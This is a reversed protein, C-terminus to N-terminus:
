KGTELLDYIQRYADAAIELGLKERARERLGIGSKCYITELEEVTQAIEVPNGLDVIAGADLANTTQEVDGVGTNSIVPVGMAFAEALKTPSSAIKSYAPKIFSLMVDSAGLLQPVEARTAPRVHIRDRLAELGLLQVLNEQEPGWDRTILLMQARDWRQAAIAFFRLMEDLMYWTGLSGLYCIVRADAAIGLEQRVARRSDETPLTFHSFDACCPIVTVPAAVAPCLRRLEPVARETLSVIYSACRLLRREIRKYSRYVIRDQWRSLSWLGGDVREDVWLGRMDFLTKTGTLQRLLCGVQMAPYSRCHVIDFRHRLQLRVATAYMRSLDWLKSLKGWGSTYSLPTWRIGARDLEARMSASDTEFRAKKEFSLIHITRRDNAIAKLYPLIQSGGLPDLLGDYTIFLASRIPAPM